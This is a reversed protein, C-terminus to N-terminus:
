FANYAVGVFPQVDEKSDVLGARFFWRRREDLAVRVAMTWQKVDQEKYRSVDFGLRSDRINYQGLAFTSDRFTSVQLLAFYSGGPAPGSLETQARLSLGSDDDRGSRGEFRNLGVGAGVAWNHQGGRTLAWRHMYGLSSSSGTSWRTYNATLLPDPQPNEDRLAKVIALTRTDRSIDFQAFDVIQAYATGPIIFAALTLAALRWKTLNM